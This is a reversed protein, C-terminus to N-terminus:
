VGPGPLPHRPGPVQPHCGHVRLRRHAAVLHPGREPEAARQGPGPHGRDPRPRSLAHGALGAAARRGGPLAPSRGGRRRAPHRSDLLASAAIAAASSERAQDSVPGLLIDTYPVGDAPAHAPAIFFSAARVAADLLARDKTHVYAATLGYIALAQPRAKIGDPDGSDTGRWRWGRPPCGPHYDVIHYAAGDPRIQDRVANAAHRHAIQFWRPDGGPQGAAWFLLDINMLGGTHVAHMLPAGAVRRSGPNWTPISGVCLEAGFSRTYTEAGRLMFSLFTPDGTLRHAERFPIMKYGINSSYDWVVEGWLGLTKNEARRKWDARGTLQYLAWLTAPFFGAGWHSANLMRYRKQGLLVAEPYAEDQAQELDPLRRYLNETQGEAFAIAQDLQAALTPSPPPAQWGTM